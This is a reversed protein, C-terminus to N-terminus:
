EEMLDRRQWCRVWDIVFDDPLEADDLPSNDWGGSVHTFRLLSPVSCVRESEWRGVPRGNCYYVARGPLWLLGVTLFGEEDHEGYIGSTGIHRHGKGYGNWHFAINYRYPGWGTLHEMIDFEMGGDTTRERKWREAADPGRDPMMWFAPWLGPARPLKVRAEFYGYRQTWKGFTDLFGTAYPTREEAPDDNHHGPDREFRLRAVGDGLIVKDRRFHSREDWHNKTHVNWLSDDLDDGDFEERLTPIWDGRVPPREGLWDPTEAPAPTARVSRVELAQGTSEAGPFIAVSSVQDSAFPAPGPTGATGTKAELAAGAEWPEPAAFPITASATEGAPITASVTGTRGKPSALNLEITAEDGDPNHLDVTVRNAGSLDWLGAPPAFRVAPESGTFRLRFGTKGPAPAVTAGGSASLQRASTLPRDPGLLFGDSREPPSKERLSAPTEGAAGTAVVSEVAFRREEDAGRTFFLLQRVRSPDLDFGEQFGNGFGFFVVVTGTEGPALRISETNWPEDKWHGPNDVRLSVPVSVGGENRVVAEVRGHESLDWVEGSGPRIGVGPFGSSGGAVIVALGGEDLPEWRAAQDRSEANTLPIAREEAARGPNGPFAPLSIALVLSPVFRPIM